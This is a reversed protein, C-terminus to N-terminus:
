KLVTLAFNASLKTRQGEITVMETTTNGNEDLAGFILRNEDLWEWATIVNKDSVLTKLEGTYPPAIFSIIGPDAQPWGPENELLLRASVFAVNGTPGFVPSGVYDTAPPALTALPNGASGQIAVKKDPQIYVLASGDPAIDGICIASEGEPCAFLLTPEGGGAPLSYLNDYRGSFSSWAGGLGDPQWAYYLTDNDSSFRVPQVYRGPQEVQNLLNVQDSGDLNALWLNNRFKVPSTTTDPIAHGWAIKTGDSSVTFGYPGFEEMSVATFALAQQEGSSSLRWVTVTQATQDFIAYFISNAAGMMRGYPPQQLQVPCTAQTTLDVLQIGAPRSFDVVVVAPRTIDPCLGEPGVVLPEPTPPAVRQPRVRVLLSNAWDWIVREQNEDAPETGQGNFILTSKLSDVQGPNDEFNYTFSALNPLWAKLSDLDAQVLSGSIAENQKCTRLTYEGTSTVTLEDCFGVIGGELSFTLGPAALAAPPAAITNTAVSVTELPTPAVSASETPITAATAPALSVSSIDEPRATNSCATLLALLMALFMLNVKIGNDM